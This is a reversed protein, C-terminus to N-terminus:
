KIKSKLYEIEQELKNIKNQQQKIAEVLVPSIKSYDVAKFWNNWTMVLEPFYKEVDQAIFWIQNSQNTVDKRKFYVWSLQLIKDLAWDIEKIDKKLRRDSSHVVSWNVYVTGDHRVWFKDVWNYLSRIAYSATPNSTPDVEDTVIMAQNSSLYSGATWKIYLRNEDDSSNIHFKGYPSTTWIWINQWWWWIYVLNNDIYLWQKWSVTTWAVWVWSWVSFSLSWDHFSSMSAGRTWLYAHWLGTPLLSAWAVLNVLWVWMGIDVNLSSWDFVWNTLRRLQLQSVRLNNADQESNIVWNINLKQTLSSTGIWVNGNYYIGWSGSWWFFNSVMNNWTSATLPSGTTVTLNTAIVFLWVWVAFSLWFLLWSFVNRIFLKKM